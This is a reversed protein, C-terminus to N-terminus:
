TPPPNRYVFRPARSGHELVFWTSVLVVLFVLLSILRNSVHGAKMQSAIIRDRQDCRECIHDSTATATQTTRNRKEISKTQTAALFSEQYTQTCANKVDVTMEIDTQVGFSSTEFVKAAMTQSGSDATTAHPPHFLVETQFSQDKLQQSQRYQDLTITPDTQSAAERGMDKITQTEFSLLEQHETQIMTSVLDNSRLTQVMNSNVKTASTQVNANAYSVENEMELGDAASNDSMVANQIPKNGASTPTAVAKDYGYSIKEGYMRPLRKRRARNSASISYVGSQASKLHELQKEFDNYVGTPEPPSLQKEAKQLVNRVNELANATKRRLLARNSNIHEKNEDIDQDQEARNRELFNHHGTEDDFGLQGQRLREAQMQFRQAYGLAQFQVHRKDFSHGDGAQRGEDGNMKKRCNEATGNMEPGSGNGKTFGYRARLKEM